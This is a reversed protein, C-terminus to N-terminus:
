FYFMVIVTQNYLGNINNSNKSNNHDNYKLVPGSFVCVPLTTHQAVSCPPTTVPSHSSGYIRMWIPLAVRVVTVNPCSTAAWISQEVGNKLETVSSQEWLM